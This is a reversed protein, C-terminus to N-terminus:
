AKPPVGVGKELFQPVVVMLMDQGDSLWASISWLSKKEGSPM